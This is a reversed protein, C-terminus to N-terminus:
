LISKFVRLINPPLDAVRIRRVFGSEDPFPRNPRRSREGPNASKNSGFMNGMPIGNARRPATAPNNKPKQSSALNCLNSDRLIWAAVNGM